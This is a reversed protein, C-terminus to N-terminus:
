TRQYVPRGIGATDFPPPRDGKRMPGRSFRPHFTEGRKMFRRAAEGAPRTRGRSHLSDRDIRASIAIRYPDTQRKGRTPCDVAAALDGRPAARWSRGKSPPIVHVLDCMEYEPEGHSQHGDTTVPRLLQGARIRSRSVDRRRMGPFAEATGGRGLVLDRDGVEGRSLRERRGEGRHVTLGRAQKGHTLRRAEPQLLDGLVAVQSRHELPQFTISM